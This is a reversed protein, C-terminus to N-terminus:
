PTVGLTKSKIKQFEEDSLVGSKNLEAASHLEALSGTGPQGAKYSRYAMFWCVPLSIPWLPILLGAAVWLFTSFKFTDAM